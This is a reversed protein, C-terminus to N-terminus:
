ASILDLGLDISRVSHTLAGVSIFDVGTEAIGKVTSLNVGGSAELKITSNTDAKMSVAITLDDNSMNDLLVVDIGPIKLFAELQDLRDAEVEIKLDPTKAKIEAVREGLDIPSPNAVLHNDKVMIADYLGMRHNTAGGHAVAQKELYRWGPTTKRTDLLIAETHAILNAYQHAVTAVGSLRQMFNLVTREATLVSRTLGRIESVLDGKAARGGDPIKIEYELEPDVASCVYAAVDHGSITSDERSVIRGISRHTADVFHTSTLDGISSLDEELALEVLIRSFRNM